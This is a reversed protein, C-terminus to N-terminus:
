SAIRKTLNLSTTGISTDIQNSYSIKTIKKNLAVYSSGIVSEPHTTVKLPGGVTVKTLNFGSYGRSFEGEVSIQLKIDKKLLFLQTTGVTTENNAQLEFVKVLSSGDIYSEKHPIPYLGSRLVGDRYYVRERRAHAAGALVAFLAQAQTLKTPEAMVAGCREPLHRRGNAM